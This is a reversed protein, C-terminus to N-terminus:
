YKLEVRRFKPADDNVHAVKEQPKLPPDKPNLHSSRAQQLRSLKEKTMFLKLRSKELALSQRQKSAKERLAVEEGFRTLDGYKGEIKTRVANEIQSTRCAIKKKSLELNSKIDRYSRMM